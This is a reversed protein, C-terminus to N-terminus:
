PVLAREREVNVTGFDSFIQGDDCPRLWHKEVFQMVAPRDLPM